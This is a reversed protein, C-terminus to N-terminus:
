RFLIFIFVHIISKKNFLTYAPIINFLLYVHIFKSESFDGTKLKNLISKAQAEKVNGDRCLFTLIKPYMESWKDILGNGNEYGSKYDM